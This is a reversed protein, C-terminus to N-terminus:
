ENYYGVYDSCIGGISDFDIKTNKEKVVIISKKSYISKEPFTWIYNQSTLTVDDNQHFFFHEILDDDVIKSITKINKAHCWLNPLLLFDLTTQYQPADHGLWWQNNQYWVDIEVNYGAKLAELIYSPDNEKEPNPGFINGRHSILLINKM